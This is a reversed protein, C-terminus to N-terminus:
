VFMHRGPAAASSRWEWKVTVQTRRHTSLPSCVIEGVAGVFLIPIVGSSVGARFWGEGVGSSRRVIQAAGDDGLRRGNLASPEGGGRWTIGRHSGRQTAGPRWDRSGPAVHCGICAATLRKISVDGGVEVWM